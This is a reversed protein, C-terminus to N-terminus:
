SNSGEPRRVNVRNTLSRGPNGLFTISKQRDCRKDIEDGGWVCLYVCVCVGYMRLESLFLSLFVCACVFVCSCVCMVCVCLVCVCVCVCVCVVCVCSVCVVCVCVCVCVVCVFVCACVSMYVCMTSQVSPDKSQCIVQQLQSILHYSTLTTENVRRTNCSERVCVERERERERKTSVASM